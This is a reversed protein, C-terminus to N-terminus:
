PFAHTLFSFRQFVSFSFNIPPQASDLPSAAAKGPKASRPVRFASINVVFARLFRAFM